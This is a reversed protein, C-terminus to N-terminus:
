LRAKESPNLYKDNKDSFYQDSMNTCDVIEKTTPPPGKYGGRGGQGGQGGREIGCGGRGECGSGTSAESINRVPHNM